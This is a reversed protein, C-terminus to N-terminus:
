RLKVAPSCTFSCDLWPLAVDGLVSNIGPAQPVQCFWFRVWDCSWSACSPSSPCSGQIHVEGSWGLTAECRNHGCGQGNALPFSSPLFSPPFSSLSPPLFLLLSPSFSPYLPFPLSPSIRLDWFCAWWPSLESGLLTASGSKRLAVFAFNLKDKFNLLVLIFFFHKTSNHCKFPWANKLTDTICLHKYESEGWDHKM